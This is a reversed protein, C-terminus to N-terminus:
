QLRFGYETPDAFFLEKNTAETLEVIYGPAFELRGQGGMINKTYKQLIPIGRREAEKYVEEISDVIYMIRTEQIYYPLKQRDEEAMIVVSVSGLVSQLGLVKLNFYEELRFEYEIVGDLNKLYNDVYAKEQEPTLFLREYPGSLLHGALFTKKIDSKTKM